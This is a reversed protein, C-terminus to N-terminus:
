SYIRLWQKPETKGDYKPNPQFAQVQLTTTGFSTPKCFLPVTLCGLKGISQGLEARGGTSVTLTTELLQLLQHSVRTTGQNSLEILEISTEGAEETAVEMQVWGTLLLNESVKTTMNRHFQGSTNNRILRDMRCGCPRQSYSKEFASKNKTPILFLKM